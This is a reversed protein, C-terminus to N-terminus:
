DRPEAAGFFLPIEAFCDVYWLATGLFCMTSGNYMPDTQVNFPFGTVSFRLLETDAAPASM